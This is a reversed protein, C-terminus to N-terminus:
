KATEHSRRSFLQFLKEVAQTCKEFLPTFFLYSLFFLVISTTGVLIDSLWHAGTILRPFCLLATYLAAALASKGKALHAYFAAFLLATTAHDGPFSKQSTEKIDIWPIQESLRVAGEFLASPSPWYFHIHDRVLIRNFFYIIAASYLTCVILEAIRRSRAFRMGKAVYHAFFGLICLDEFWDALPHNALAWLTQWWVPGDLTSNILHFFSTDLARWVGKTPPFFLTFLLIAVLAHVGILRPLDWRREQAKLPTAASNIKPEYM